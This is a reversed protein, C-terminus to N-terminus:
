ASVTEDLLASSTAFGSAGNYTATINNSGVPLSATFAIAQHTTSNLTVTGILTSGDMFTVSGTPSGSAATVTAILAVVQGANIPNSSAALATTTASNVTETLSASSTAFGSAGNYTATIKNSGIPLSLTFAVAQHTTSNVTVTGILTSGDMFTVTGTPSGSGATVTAILAVVQGATIPNSSAALSTTTMVASVGNVTETLPASSSTAFGSAGNYTATLNNSGIPLSATFAIAQHTTSNIAVTGILTSGDMFTVTGTPSGGNSTVTAILAVVQGATIPNASAALATTTAAGAPNVTESLVSSTSTAFGTAGNYTATISDSGTPLSATFAIAQHTTSNIAATGIPTSGDMFTVTGTPSGSAATVTAVLAVVQGVTIPNSSAALTTTTVAGAPNVTESLVSSTSTAFGSAGNYTATVSNAGTPLSATFAVAQDTTSNLAVTGILTSGDMFTVTGTPSGSAATVTAVLAVVQGATIPNSSAALATTTAAGAPNVTESLVSSTSTAFGSAGNYTATISNSGTPLSATFAIAQDTTSNLAATGIPTSGDMFTVTGTPSGSAATVNATLAVVQGATIPNASATLKTTTQTLPATLQTVTVSSVNFNYVLNDAPNSTPQLDPNYAATWDSSPVYTNLYLSMPGAPVTDTETRIVQGDVSWQIENPLWVMQYTHSQTIDGDTLTASTPSGAGLPQDAYVNTQVQNINNTLLETDIEDHNGSSGPPNYLFAAAVIGAPDNAAVQATVDVVLGQGVTFQQNSIIESGFFSDGPTLATPNYTELPLHLAGDSVPPVYPAVQLQTHGLYTSGNPDWSPVYWNATNLSSGSFDDQLLVVGDQGVDAHAVTDPENEVPITTGSALAVSSLLTRQELAEAAFHRSGACALRRRPKLM